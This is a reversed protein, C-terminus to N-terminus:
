GVPRELADALLEAVHAHDLLRVPAHTAAVVRAHADGLTAPEEQEVGVGPDLRVILSAVTEVLQDGERVLVGLGRDDPRPEDVGVARQLARHAGLRREPSEGGFVEADALECRARPAQVRQVGAAEVVVLHTGDLPEVAWRQEDTALRGVGDAQEVLVEEHEAFLDVPHCPEAAGAPLHEEERTRLDHM